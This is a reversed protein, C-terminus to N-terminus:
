ADDDQVVGGFNKNAEIEQENPPPTTDREDESDTEEGNDPEEEDSSTSAREWEEEEEYSLEEEEDDANFDIERRLPSPYLLFPIHNGKEDIRFPPRPSERAPMSPASPTTMWVGPLPPQAWELQGRHEPNLVGPTGPSERLLEELEEAYM